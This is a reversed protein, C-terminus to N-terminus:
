ARLKQKAGTPRYALDEVVEGALLHHRVIRDTGDEDVGGYLTGEPWVQLVPALSCPGLCSTRASMAGDGATRLSLRKQENRLYGWVVAAGAAHCPGGMCVLVRRKQAPVVSGETPPVQPTDLPQSDDSRITAALLERMLPHEGPFPAIRIDPWARDDTAKWRQVTRRIWTVFNAEAPLLMPVIVIPTDSAEVLARLADRLSPVGEESFAFVAAAVGPLAAAEDRWREMERLPAGTTASRALLLVRSPTRNGTM